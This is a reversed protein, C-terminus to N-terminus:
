PADFRVRFFQRIGSVPVQVKLQLVSNSIAQRSIEPVANTWSVLDESVEFRADMQVRLDQEYSLGIVPRNWQDIGMSHDVAPAEHGAMWDQMTWLGDGTEQIEFQVYVDDAPATTADGPQFARLVVPGAAAPTLRHELESVTVAGEGSQVELHVPLGSSAYAQVQYVASTAMLNPVPRVFIHQVREAIRFDQLVPSAPAYTADGGQTAAVEVTGTGTFYLIGNTLAAPGSQVAFSVPLGSDSEASLELSQFDLQQHPIADFTIHQLQGEASRNIVGVADLDFGASGVTPYPDYIVYGEADESTGDGPIDILKVYGIDTLDLYDIAGSFAEVYATSFSHTGSAIANSVAALEALDFPTGIGQRYRSALGYIFTPEVTGYAGVPDQTLSYNPFRVFHTGDSSVEVWALELFNDSVGNEFVAFDAGSGDAIGQSFTLTIEGGRGLCVIDYSTGEAPGLGEAPTQWGADVAQGPVYDRYGDAWAVFSADDKGMGDDAPYTTVGGFIELTQFFLLASFAFRIKM